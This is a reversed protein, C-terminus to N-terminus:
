LQGRGMFALTQFRRGDSMAQLENGIGLVVAAAIIVLAITNSDAEHGFATAGFEAPQGM